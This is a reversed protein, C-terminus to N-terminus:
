AQKTEWWGKRGGGEGVSGSNSFLRYLCCGRGSRNDTAHRGVLMSLSYAPSPPAICHPLLLSPMTAVGIFQSLLPSGHILIPTILLYLPLIPLLAHYSAGYAPTASTPMNAGSTSAIRTLAHADAGEEQGGM